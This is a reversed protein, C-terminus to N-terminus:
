VPLCTSPDARTGIHRHCRPNEIACPAKRNARHGLGQMRDCSPVRNSVILVTGRATGTLVFEFAPSPNHITIRKKEFGRLM